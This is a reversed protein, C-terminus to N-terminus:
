FKGNDDDDDEDMHLNYTDLIIDIEIVFLLYPRELLKKKKWSNEWRM